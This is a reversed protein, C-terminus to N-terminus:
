TKTEDTLLALIDNETMIFIEKDKGNFNIIRRDGSFEGYIIREGVKREKEKNGVAIITGSTPRKKSYDTLIIGGSTKEVVEDPLVFIKENLPVINM